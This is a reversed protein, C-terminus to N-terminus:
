RAPRVHAIVFRDAGLIKLIAPRVGDGKHLSIIIICVLIFSKATKTIPMNM